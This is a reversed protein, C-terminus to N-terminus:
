PARTIRSACIPLVALQAPAWEAARRCERKNGYFRSNERDNAFHVTEADLFSFYFLGKPTLERPAGFPFKNAELRSNFAGFRSNRRYLRHAIAACLLLVLFLGM